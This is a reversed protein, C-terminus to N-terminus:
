NENAPAAPADGWWEELRRALRPEEGSATPEYFPSRKFGPPLYDQPVFGGFEHPNLYGEGNGLRERAGGLASSRLHPPVRVSQGEQAASRARKMAQYSANSKPASALFTTAQALPIACEPMGVKEVASLAAVALPLARPEANGIDESAAIVLRRAVFMPDEGGDLMRMMWFLAADPDSGRISKIFASITDYHDDGSKDYFADAGLTRKVDALTLEGNHALDASMELAGLSLRADGRSARAIWELAGEEPHLALAGLGREDSLAGHLLALVDGESLPEFKWMRCRSLLPGNLSALPNETTAGILVLTGDEVHPLFADQQARNFRHIEDVFLLTRAGSRQRLKAGEAIKRVDGVSGGIASFEEFHSKSLKALLRALTTKGTGAPGFFISSPLRDRELARRLPAGPGVLHPQGAFENLNRPRMRAALPLLSEDRPASRSPPAFDEDAFLNM